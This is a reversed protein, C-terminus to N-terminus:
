EYCRGVRMIMSNNHQEDWLIIFSHKLRNLNGNIVIMMYIVRYGSNSMPRAWRDDCYDIKHQGYGVKSLRYQSLRGWFEGGNIDYENWVMSTLKPIESLKM